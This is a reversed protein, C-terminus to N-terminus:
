GLWLVLWIFGKGRQRKRAQSKTLEDYGDIAAVETSADADQHQCCKPHHAHIIDVFHIRHFRQQLTSDVANRHNGENDSSSHDPWLCDQHYHASDNPAETSRVICTVDLLTPYSEEHRTDAQAHSDVEEETLLSSVILFGRDSSQVQQRMMM